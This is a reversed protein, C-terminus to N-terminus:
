SSHRWVGLLINFRPVERLYQRYEDGWKEINYKEELHSGINLYVIMLAIAFVTLITFHIYQSLIVPFIHVM